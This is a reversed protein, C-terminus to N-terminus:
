KVNHFGWRTTHDHKKVQVTKDSFVRILYEPEDGKEYARYTMAWYAPKKNKAPYFVVYSGPRGQPPFPRVQWNEDRTIKKKLAIRALEIAETLSIVGSITKIDIVPENDVCQSIQGQFPAPAKWELCSKKDKSTLTTATFGNDNIINDRWFGDLGTAKRVAHYVSANYAIDKLDERSTYVGQSDVLYVQTGKPSCCADGDLKSGYNIKIIKVPSGQYTVNLSSCVLPNELNKISTPLDQPCENIFDSFVFLSFFFLSVM